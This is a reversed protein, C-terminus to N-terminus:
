NEGAEDRSLYAPVVVHASGAAINLFVRARAPVLTGRLVHSLFNWTGSQEFCGSPGDGPCPM